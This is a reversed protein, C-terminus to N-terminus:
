VSLKIGPGMTSSLVASKIYRGKSSPPKSRTIYDLVEQINQLLAEKSFSVKGVPAHINGGSDNRVEVKGAKFERVAQGIDPRVTGSKPSPMLGKPGLFRGLKGVIKMVEPTALAVDFDAWGGEVRQALDTTGVHDAGAARAQEAKEGEAFVVVRVNKGIGNPLSVSGRVQQDSQKPDIGLELSLEVTEDFKASKFSKLLSVAEDLAYAKQRDLM